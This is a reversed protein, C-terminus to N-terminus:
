LKIWYLSKKDWSSAINRYLVYLFGNNIMIKHPFTFPIKISFETTGDRLNIEYLDYKSRNRIMTYAKCAVPDVLIEEQWYWDNHYDIHVSSQYWLNADYKDLSSVMHNFYYVTDGVKHMVQFSPKYMIEREFRIAAEIDGFWDPHTLIFTIQENLARAKQIEYASLITRKLDTEKDICYFQQNYKNFTTQFVVQKSTEFLCDDLTKHFKDTSVPHRLLLQSDALEVQHAFHKDYVHCIGLCDRSLYKMNNKESFKGSYAITDFFPDTLVLEYTKKSHNFLLILINEDIFNFDMVSIVDKGSSFKHQSIILAEKLLNVKPLLQIDFAQIHDAPSIEITRSEYSIHSFVLTLPLSIVQLEYYGEADTSTGRYTGHILVNVKDVPQYSIADVVRGKITHQDQGCIANVLFLFTLIYICRPIM